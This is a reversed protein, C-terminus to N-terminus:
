PLDSTCISIFTLLVREFHFGDLQPSNQHPYNIPQQTTTTKVTLTLTIKLLVSLSKLSLLGVNPVLYWRVHHHLNPDVQILPSSFNKGTCLEEDGVCWIRLYQTRLAVGREKASIFEWYRLSKKNKPTM